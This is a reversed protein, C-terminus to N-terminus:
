IGHRRAHIVKLYLLVKHHCLNIEKKEPLIKLDDAIKNSRSLKGM